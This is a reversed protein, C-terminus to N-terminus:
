KMQLRCSESLNFRHVSILEVIERFTSDPTSTDFIKYKKLIYSQNNYTTLFYEIPSVNNLGEVVNSFKLPGQYIRNQRDFLYLYVMESGSILLDSIHDNNVDASMVLSNDNISNLLNFQDNIALLNKIKSAEIMQHKVKRKELQALQKEDFHNQLETCNKKFQHTSQTKKLLQISNKSKQLVHKNWNLKKVACDANSCSLVDQYFKFILLLPDELSMRSFDFYKYILDLYMKYNQVVLMRVKKNQCVVSNVIDECKIEKFIQLLKKSVQKPRAFPKIYKISNPLLIEFPIQLTTANKIESKFLYLKVGYESLSLRMENTRWMDLALKLRKNEPKLVLSEVNMAKLYGLFVSIQFAQNYQFFSEPKLMQDNKLNYYYIKTMQRHNANAFTLFFEISTKSESLIEFTLKCNHDCAFSPKYLSIIEQIEQKIHENVLENKLSKQPLFEINQIQVDEVLEEVKTYEFAFLHSTLLLLFFFIELKLKM